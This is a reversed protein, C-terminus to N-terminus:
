AHHLGAQLIVFVLDIGALMLGGRVRDRRVRDDIETTTRNVHCVSGASDVIFDEHILPGNDDGESGLTTASSQSAATSGRDTGTGTVASCLQTSAAQTM